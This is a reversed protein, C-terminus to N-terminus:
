VTPRFFVTKCFCFPRIWPRPNVRSLQSILRIDCSNQGKSKADDDRIIYMGGYQQVTALVAQPYKEYKKQDNVTYNSIVYGSM